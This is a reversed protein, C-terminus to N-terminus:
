QNEDSLIKICSRGRLVILERSAASAINLAAVFGAAAGKGTTL